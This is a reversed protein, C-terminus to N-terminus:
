APGAEGTAHVAVRVRRAGYPLIWLCSRSLVVATCHHISGRFAAISADHARDGSQLLDDACFNAQDCHVRGRIGGTCASVVSRAAEVDRTPVSLTGGDLDRASQASGQAM